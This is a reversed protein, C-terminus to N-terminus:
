PTVEALYREKRAREKGFANNGEIKVRRIFSDVLGSAKRDEDDFIKGFTEKL